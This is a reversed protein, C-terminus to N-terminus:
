DTDMQPFTGAVSESVSVDGGDRSPSQSFYGRVEERSREEEDFKQKGKLKYEELQPGRVYLFELDELDEV